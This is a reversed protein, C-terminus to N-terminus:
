KSLLRFIGDPLKVTPHWGPLLRGGYWPRMVERERYPRAGWKVPLATGSKKEYIRILKKLKIQEGSSVAYREHGAALGKLLRKGAILYAEVVDDIYVLDLSQNGPSMKLNKKKGTMQQLLSFLKKRRDDPGYTDYLKLTIAKLPTSEIYFQLMDEFAQKTAAYLCAPSYDRGQYHQWSTGTNVLHYVKHAAMAEILQTGFVINSELMPVVNEAAHEALFMSALHFVIDPRANKIIAFMGKTTGDHKHIRIDKRVSGLQILSSAPRILIHVRYGDKALRRTLHSGVFGTAGTVLATIASKGM